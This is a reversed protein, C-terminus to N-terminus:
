CHISILKSIIDCVLWANKKQEPTQESPPVEDGKTTSKQEPSQEMDFTEALEAGSEGSKLEVTEDNAEAIVDNELHGRDEDDGNDGTDENLTLDVNMTNVNSMQTLSIPKSQSTDRPEVIGQEAKESEM